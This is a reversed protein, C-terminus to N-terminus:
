PTGKMKLDDLSLEGTAGFLGIRMIAERARVPVNLKFSLTKWGFTGRTDGPTPDGITARNEDYFQVELVPQHQVNPVPVVNTSRVQVSFELQHVYRGDVAFGQLAQAGRGAQANRFRVYRKGSPADKDEVVEM